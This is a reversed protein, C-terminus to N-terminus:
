IAGLDRLGRAVAETLVASGRANLHVEDAFYTHDTGVVGDLDLVDAGTDAAIAAVASEFRAYDDPHPHRALYEPTVPLQVLVVRVGDAQATTILRHLALPDDVGLSWSTLNLGPGGPPREDFQQTNRFAMYGDADISEVVPDPPPEDGRLADLLQEPDRLEVRNALLESRDELAREVRDAASEDRLAARGGPSAVYADFFATRGPPEDSLDFSTLGIVLVRPRLRPLVVSRTWVDVLRPIASSLSANYATVDGGLASSFASPVFGVNSMSNGVFVVDVPEHGDMQEVKRQAEYSHFRLPEVLRPAAARAGLEAVVLAVVAAVALRWVPPWPAADRREVRVGDAAM